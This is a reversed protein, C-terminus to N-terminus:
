LEIALTPAKLVVSLFFRAFSFSVKEIQYFFRIVKSFYNPAKFSTSSALLTKHM